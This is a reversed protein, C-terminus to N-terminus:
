NGEDLAAQGNEIATEMEAQLAHVSSEFENLTAKKAETLEAGNMIEDTEFAGGFNKMWSMMSSNAHELDAIAKVKISDVNTSDISAELKGMLEGIESMKPMLEDHIAVVEEMQTPGEPTETEAEKNKCAVVSLFIVALVLLKKM